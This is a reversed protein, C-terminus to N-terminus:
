PSEDVLPSAPCPARPLDGVVFRAVLDGLTLDRDSPGMGLSSTIWAV